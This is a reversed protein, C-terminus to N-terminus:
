KFIYLFKYSIGKVNVYRKPATSLAKFLYELANKVATPFQHKNSEFYLSAKLFRDALLMDDDIYNPHPQVFLEIMMCMLVLMNCDATFNEQSCQALRKMNNHLTKELEAPINHRYFSIILLLFHKRFSELSKCHM